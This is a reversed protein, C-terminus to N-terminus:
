HAPDAEPAPPRTAAGLRITDGVQFPPAGDYRRVHAVGTPLRLVADYYAVKSPAHAQAPSPGTGGFARVLGAILRDRREIHGAVIRQFWNGNGPDADVRADAAAVPNVAEVVACDACAGSALLPAVALPAETPPAVALPANTLPALALSADALPAEARPAKALPADALPTARAGILLPEVLVSTAVEDGRTLTASVRAQHAIRDLADVRYTGEYVGSRVEHLDISSRAGDIHLTAHAGPTASLSFNLPVGPAVQDVREVGFKEVQLEAAVHQAADPQALAVGSLAVPLTLVLGAVMRRMQRM